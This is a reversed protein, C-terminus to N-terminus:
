GAVGLDAAAQLCIAQIAQRDRADLALDGSGEQEVSGAADRGDLLARVLADADARLDQARVV